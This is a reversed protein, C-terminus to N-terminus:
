AATVVVDDLDISHWGGGLLVNGAAISDDSVQALVKTDVSAQVLPGAFVLNFIHADTSQFSAITGSALPAPNPHAMLAWAGDHQIELCYATLSGDFGSLSQVRGCIRAYRKQPPISVCGAGSRLSIQGSTMNYNWSQGPDNGAVPLAFLTGNAAATLVLGDLASTLAGTSASYTWMLNPFTSGGCSGGTTLCEYTDVLTGCGNIDICGGGAVSQLYGPAPGAVFAQSASGDDCPQMLLPGNPAGAGSDSDPYPGSVNFRVTASVSYDAWSEDGFQTLPDLPSGWGNAGNPGWGVMSYKGGLAKWAGGQDSFFRAISGDPLSNFDESFPLPWAAPPPIPDPFTGHTAGDVTSATLMEDPLLSLSFTGDASIEMDAEQVFLADRRSRWVHLTSGPAPLPGGPLVSFTIVVPEYDRAICADNVLTEVVVTIGSGSPPVLAVWTGASKNGGSSQILGSGMSNVSLYRWGPQVFQTTHASLWIPASAEYNGSWPTHARMLGAGDCVLNTYASWILSWSITATANMLVYNQNLAKGWYTAGDSWAPDRSYDESAWLAWGVNATEPHPKDCPYHLGAAYVAAAFSSNALAMEYSNTDWGGDMIIVRTDFGAKILSQKLALVYDTDSPQPRENWLGLYDLAQGAHTNVCAVWSTQYDINEASYYSGNGV